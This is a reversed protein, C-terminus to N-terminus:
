FPNIPPPYKRTEGAQFVWAIKTLARMTTSITQALAPGRQRAKQCHPTTALAFPHTRARASAQLARITTTAYRAQRQGIFFGTLLKLGSALRSLGRDKLRFAGTFPMAGRHAKCSFPPMKCTGPWILSKMETGADGFGLGNRFIRQLAAGDNTWVRHILDRSRQATM